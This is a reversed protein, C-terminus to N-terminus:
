ATPGVPGEGSFLIDHKEHGGNYRTLAKILLGELPASAARM